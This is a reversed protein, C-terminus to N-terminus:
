DEPDYFGEIAITFTADVVADDLNEQADSAKSMASRLAEARYAIDDALGWEDRGSDV